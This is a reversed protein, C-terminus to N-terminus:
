CCRLDDTVISHLHLMLPVIGGPYVVSSSSFSIGTDNIWWLEWIPQGPISGAIGRHSDWWQAM